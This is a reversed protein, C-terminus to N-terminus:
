TLFALHKTRGRRHRIQGRGRLSLAHIYNGRAIVASPAEECSSEKSSVGEGMRQQQLETYGEGELPSPLHPM